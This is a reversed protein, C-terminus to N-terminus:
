EIAQIDRIKIFTHKHGTSSGVIIFYVLLVCMRLIGSRTGLAMLDLEPDYTIASVKNPFGHEMCQVVCIVEPREITKVV